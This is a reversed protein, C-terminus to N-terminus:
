AHHTGEFTMLRSIARIVRDFARKDFSVGDDHVDATNAMDVVANRLITLLRLRAFLQPHTDHNWVTHPDHEM